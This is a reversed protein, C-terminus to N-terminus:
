IITTLLPFILVSYVEENLFEDDGIDLNISDEVDMGNVDNIKKDDKCVKKSTSAEIPESAERKKTVNKVNDTADAAAADSKSTKTTEANTQSVTDESKEEAATEADMMDNGTDEETVEDKVVLNDMNVEEMSDDFDERSNSSQSLIKTPSKKDNDFSFKEPDEGDDKIAQFSM